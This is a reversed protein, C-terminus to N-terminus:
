RRVGGGTFDDASTTSTLKNGWAMRNMPGFRDGAPRRGVVKDDTPLRDIFSSVQPNDSNRQRLGLAGLAEDRGENYTRGM